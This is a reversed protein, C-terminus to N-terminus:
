IISHIGKEFMFIGLKTARFRIIRGSNYKDNKEECEVCGFRVLNKKFLGYEIDLYFSFDDLDKYYSELKFHTKITQCFTKFDIWQSDKRLFVDWLINQNKQLINIVSVNNIEAIVKIQTLFEIVRETNIKWGYKKFENFIKQQHFQKQLAAIDALSINGTITRTIPKQELYKLFVIFDHFFNNNLVEQNISNDLNM